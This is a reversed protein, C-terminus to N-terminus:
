RSRGNINQLFAEMFKSARNTRMNDLITAAQKNNIKLFVEVAVSQDMKEMLKAAQLPEMEGFMLAMQKIKRENPNSNLINYQSATDPPRYREDDDSLNAIQGVNQMEQSADAAQKKAITQENGGTASAVSVEPIPQGDKTKDNVKSNASQKDEDKSKEKEDASEDKTSEEDDTTKEKEEPLTDEKTETAHKEAFDNVMPLIVRYFAFIFLAFLTVGFLWLGVKAPNFM